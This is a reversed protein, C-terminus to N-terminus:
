APTRLPPQKREDGASQAYSEQQQQYAAQQQRKRMAAQAAQLLPQLKANPDAYDDWVGEVFRCLRPRRLTFRPRPSSPHGHRCVPERAPPQVSSNAAVARSGRDASM